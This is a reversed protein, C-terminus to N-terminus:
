TDGEKPAEDKHESGILLDAEPTTARTYTRTHVFQSAVDDDSTASTPSVELSKSVNESGQIDNNNTIAIERVPNTAHHENRLETDLARLKQRMIKGSANRPIDAVFRVGGELHKYKALREAAFTKVDQETVENSGKRVIYARPVEGGIRDDPSSLVGLVAAGAIAPHTLLVSELEAPSVQWGRVKLLDKKRDVVYWKGNRQYAVDGTHLWGDSDVTEATATPNDLYGRMMCSGKVLMEGEMDEEGITSGDNDVLKINMGPLARGVSGTDDGEPWFFATGWGLETMGWVQVIKAERNLLVQFNAQTSHRLPSGASWIYRLSALTNPRANEANLISILMAPVVATETIQFRSICDVFHSVEFKRMLYM